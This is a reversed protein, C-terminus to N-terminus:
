PNPNYGFIEAEWISLLNENFEGANSDTMIVEVYRGETPSFNFTQFDTDTSSDGSWVEQLNAPNDGVKISIPFPGRIDAKYFKIRVEGVNRTQGLDFRIWASWLQNWSSWRTSVANGDFADEAPCCGLEEGVEADSVAYKVFEPLSSISATRSDGMLNRFEVLQEGALEWGLGGQSDFVCLGVVRAGNGDNHSGAAEDYWDNVRQGAAQDDGRMGWEGVAVDVGKGEAWDRIYPWLFGGGEDATGFTMLSAEADRYIDIGLFDYIGPGWWDDADRGSNEDFTWAMLIPALAIIPITQSTILLPYFTKELTKSMNMSIALSIGLVLSIALGIAIVSFTIPLHHLFLVETLEWLKMGVETPAPLIFSTNVLRAGMEWILLLFFTLITSYIYNKM